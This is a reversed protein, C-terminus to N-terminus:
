FFLGEFYTLVYIRQSLMWKRLFYSYMCASTPISVPHLKVSKEQRGPVDSLGEISSCQLDVDM